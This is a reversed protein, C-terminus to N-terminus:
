PVLFIVKTVPDRMRTGPHQGTVDVINAPIRSSGPPYVCGPKGPV